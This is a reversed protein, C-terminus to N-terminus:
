MPLSHRLGRATLLFALRGPGGGTLLFPLPLPLCIQLHDSPGGPAETPEESMGTEGAEAVVWPALWAATEGIAVTLAEHLVLEAAGGAEGAAPVVIAESRGGEMM